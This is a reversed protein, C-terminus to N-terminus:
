VKERIHFLSHCTCTENKGLFLSWQACYKKKLWDKCHSCKNRVEINLQSITFSRLEPAGHVSSTCGGEKKKPFNELGSPAERRRRRRREISDM